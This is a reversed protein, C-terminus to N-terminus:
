HTSLLLRTESLMLNVNAINMSNQPEIHVRRKTSVTM